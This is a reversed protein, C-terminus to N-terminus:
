TSDDLALVLALVVPAQVPLVDLVSHRKPRWERSTAARTTHGADHIAGGPVDHPDAVIVPVKWAKMRM